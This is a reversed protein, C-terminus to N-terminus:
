LADTYIRATRPANGREDLFLSYLNGDIIREETAKCDPSNGFVWEPRQLLKAQARVDDTMPAPQAELRLVGEFSGILDAVSIAADHLDALNAVRSAVSAVGHKGLKLPSPRLVREMAAIDVTAMLTGHCLCHGDIAEALGGIKSGAVVLDNRGSRQAHVGMNALVDLALKAAADGCPEDSVLSYNLNGLDHYVAGGGSRRRALAIGAEALYPVDTEWYPNQNRGIVVCPDNVWLFVAPTGARLLSEEFALNEFPNHSESVFLQM